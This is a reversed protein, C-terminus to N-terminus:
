PLFTTPPLPHAGHLVTLVIAVATLVLVLLCSALWRRTM